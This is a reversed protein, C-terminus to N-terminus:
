RITSTLLGKIHFDRDRLVEPLNIKKEAVCYLILYNTQYLFGGKEDMDVCTKFEILCLIGGYRKHRCVICFIYANIIKILHILVACM